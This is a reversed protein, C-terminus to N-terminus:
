GTAPRWVPTSDTWGGSTLSVQNGGDSDMLTIESVHFGTLRQFVIQRGDPSWSPNSDINRTLRHLEGGESQVVYIGSAHRDPGLKLRAFAISSGDPSWALSSPFVGNPFRTLVKKGSGDANMVNLSGPLLFAIRRGDPSWALSSPWGADPGLRTLRNRGTGDGNMVYVDAGSEDSGLAFVIQKGDPSWRPDRASAPTPDLLVSRSSWDRSTVYIAGDDTVLIRRGDPSWDVQGSVSDPLLRQGDGDANAVYLSFAQGRQTRQFAIRRGDPSWAPMSDIGGHTLRRLSGDTQLVYLDSFANTAPARAFAILRTDPATQGGCGALLAAAAVALVCRTM